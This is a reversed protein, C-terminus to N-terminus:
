GVPVLSRESTDKDENDAAGPIGPRFTDLHTQVQGATPTNISQIAELLSNIEEMEPCIGSVYHYTLYKNEPAGPNVLELNAQLDRLEELDEEDLKVYVGLQIFVALMFTGQRLRYDELAALYEPHTEHPIEKPGSATQITQVPPQPETSKLEKIFQALTAQGVARLKLEIGGRTTFIKKTSM